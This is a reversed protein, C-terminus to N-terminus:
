PGGGVVSPWSTLTEGTETDVLSVHAGPRGYQGVVSSFKRRANAERTWWGQLVERGDLTLTLRYRGADDM